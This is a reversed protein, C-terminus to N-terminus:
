AAQRPRWGAVSEQRRAIPHISELGWDQRWSLLQEASMRCDVIGLLQAPSKKDYNFRRRSYNKYAMHLQLHLDLYHRKKSALWSDRRLRSVLDRVMAETHNIPFLPNWTGRALQSNTTLHVLRSRGFAKRLQKPYASKEDTHVPVVQLERALAAGHSLTREIARRSEDRRPRQADHRAIARKRSPTMKGRPRITASEAWVMFRSHQEILIPVTLPRTNRSHEYTEIEDFQFVAGEQLPVRLNLNLQRLHRAIKRFKIATCQRGLDAIRATQRLGLGSALLYFVLANRDPKHDRYDMRFTQRSFTRRCSICRFRPVPWPRCKPHYFGHCVFFDPKPDSHQCCEAYPCRPPQFM